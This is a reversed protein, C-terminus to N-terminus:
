EGGEVRKERSEVRAKREEDRTGKVVTVINHYVAVYLWGAGCRVNMEVKLLSNFV